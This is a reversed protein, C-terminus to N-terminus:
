TVQKKKILYNVHEDWKLNTDFNVVLYKCSNMRKLKEKNIYIDLNKPVSATYNGFPIYM